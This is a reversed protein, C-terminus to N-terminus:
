YAEFPMSKLSKSNYKHEQLTDKYFVNKGVAKVVAHGAAIDWENLSIFRPYWDIEGMAVKCFKLSSGVSVREYSELNKLEKELQEEPHHVSSAIKVHNLNRPHIKSHSPSIENVESGNFFYAGLSNLGAYYENLDPCAVVGAIVENNQILAINVTWEGSGELFGKTGDIPDILWFLNWKQRVEYIDAETEESLIPIDLIQPLCNELFDNFFLDAKSVPTGDAKQTFTKDRYDQNLIDKALNLLDEKLKIQDM